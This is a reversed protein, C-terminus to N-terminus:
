DGEQQNDAIVYYSEIGLLKELHDIYNNLSVIYAHLDFEYPMQDRNTTHQMLTPRKM